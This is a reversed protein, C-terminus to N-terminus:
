RIFYKFFIVRPPLLGLSYLLLLVRNDIIFLHTSKEHIDNTHTSTIVGFERRRPPPHRLWNLRRPIGRQSIPYVGRSTKESIISDIFIFDGQQKKNNKKVTLFSRSMGSVAPPGKEIYGLKMPYLYNLHVDLIAENFLGL